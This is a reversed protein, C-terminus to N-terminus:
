LSQAIRVTSEARAYLITDVVVNVLQHDLWDLMCHKSM